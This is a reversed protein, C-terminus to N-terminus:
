QRKEHQCREVANIKGLHQRLLPTTDLGPLNPASLFFGNVRDFHKHANRRQTRRDCLKEGDSEAPAMKGRICPKGAEADPHHAVDDEQQGDQAHLIAPPRTNRVLIFRLQDCSANVTEAAVRREEAKVEHIDTDQQQVFIQQREAKRYKGNDHEVQLYQLLFSVKYVGKACRILLIAAM